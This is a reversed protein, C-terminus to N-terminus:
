RTIWLFATGAEDVRVQSGLRAQALVRDIVRKYITRTRALRVQIKAPEIQDAALAAHDLYLPVKLRPGIAALAEELTYGDIEANLFEFLSPATRGPTQQPEWGIPWHPLSRDAAKGLTISDISDAVALAVRYVVPQGRSKEPRLVLRCNRLIMALGTGASLGELEDEISKADRLARDGEADVAVKSDFKAHLREIVTRPSQGKTEFDIPQALDAFVAEIEKETLGFMGRPATLSEGGDAALREFYDKLRGRDSRSFTGGPLLLQHRSTLIGLAHYVPREATGLNEVRPQDGPQAARIRVNDIGLETLLQLWEHPATIQVGRETALELQIPAAARVGTALAFLLVVNALLRLRM